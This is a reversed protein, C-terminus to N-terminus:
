TRESAPRYVSRGIRKKSELVRIQMLEARAIVLSREGAKLSGDRIATHKSVSVPQRRPPWAAAESGDSHWCVITVAASGVLPKRSPVAAAGNPQDVAMASKLASPLSSKATTSRRSDEASRYWYSM